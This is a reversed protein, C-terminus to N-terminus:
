HLWRRLSGTTPRSRATCTSTGSTTSPLGRIPSVARWCSSRWSAWRICTRPPSQANARGASPHPTPTLGHLSRPIRRPRPRPTGRSASTPWAGAAKTCSSMRPSSTAISLRATSIWATRAIDILISVAEAADLPGGAAELHRRLSKDARPMILVWHDKTEGSDIIPVVNRVNSLNEFLLEREAGPEKPVLKAVAPPMAGSTVEFVQRVRRRRYAQRSDM